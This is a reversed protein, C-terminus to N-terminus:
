AADQVLDTVGDGGVAAVDADVAEAEEDGENIWAGVDIQVRFRKLRRPGPLLQFDVAGADPVVDDDDDGSDGVKIMGADQKRRQIGGSAAGNYGANKRIGDNGAFSSKLDAVDDDFHGIAGHLRRIVPPSTQHILRNM